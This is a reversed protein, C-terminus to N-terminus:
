STRENWNLDPLTLEEVITDLLIMTGDFSPNARHEAELGHVASPCDQASNLHNVHHPLPLRLIVMIPM